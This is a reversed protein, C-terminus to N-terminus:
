TGAAPCLPSLIPGMKDQFDHAGLPWALTPRPVGPEWAPRQRRPSLNRGGFSWSVRGVTVTVRALGAATGVPAGPAARKGSSCRRRPGSFPSTCDASGLHSESVFLFYCWRGTQAEPPRACM